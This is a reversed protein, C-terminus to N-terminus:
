GHKVYTKIRNYIFHFVGIFKIRFLLLYLYIM